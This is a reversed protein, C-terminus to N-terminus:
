SGSRGRVQDRWGEEAVNSHKHAYTHEATLIRPKARRLLQEVIEGLIWSTYNIAATLKMVLVTWSLAAIRCTTRVHDLVAIHWCYASMTIVQSFVGNWWHSSLLQWFDLVEYPSRAKLTAAGFSHFLKGVLILCDVERHEKLFCSLVWRSRM